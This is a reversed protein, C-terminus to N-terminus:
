KSEEVWKKIIDVDKVSCYQFGNKEAWQAHTTKMGGCLKSNNAFIFRLDIDPYQKKILIYKNREQSDSLYGKTELLIKNPLTWDVTYHHKSEPVIYPIVTVEYEYDAKSDKLIQEFTLELKSRRKKESM